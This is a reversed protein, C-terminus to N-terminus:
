LKKKEVRIEEPIRPTTTQLRVDGVLMWALSESNTVMNSMEDAVSGLNDGLQSSLKLNMEDLEPETEKIEDVEKQLHAILIEATVKKQKLLQQSNKIMERAVYCQELEKRLTEGAAYDWTGAELSLKLEDMLSPNFSDAIKQDSIEKKTWQTSWTSTQLFDVIAQAKELEGNLILQTIYLKLHVPTDEDARAFEIVGEEALGEFFKELISFWMTLFIHSMHSSFIISFFNKWIYALGEDTPHRLAMTMLKKAKLHSINKTMLDNEFEAKEEESTFSIMDKWFDTGKGYYGQFDPTFNNKKNEM